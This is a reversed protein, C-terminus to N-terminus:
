HHWPLEVPAPPLRGALLDTLLPVLGLPRILETTTTLEEVTWWRHGALVRREMDQLGALDVEHATVRHFFFDDRFVGAAWGVDAYGSTRAVPEGLAAPAVVLGTEEALERAATEPLREGPEVGGGPTSWCCGRDPQDPDDLFRFLLLREAADVLLVRASRRLYGAEV